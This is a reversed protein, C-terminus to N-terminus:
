INQSKMEFSFTTGENVESSVQIASQHLELIRHVIALGLGANSSKTRTSDQQYFRDFIRSVDEKPIGCGTDVIKVVVNSSDVDVSITITGGSPTHRLGNDILNELVRQMMALDGHILPAKPNLDTHIDIQKQEASLQYKQAVDMVLECMSFPEAYVVSECSDLKALEFLEEVLGTLHKSHSLATQIYELQSEKSIDGHQLVLTELYGQMATLPTRLDHSVNAVMERRVSDMKKLEDVQGNIKDAMQNFQTGLAEIEDTSHESVQYRTQTRQESNDDAYDSMASGLRRLRRTQFSFVLVGGVLATILALLLINMTSDFIYSEGLMAVADDYQEGGLVIYLYGQFQGNEKIEAASFVKYGDENRPDDGKLPFQVDTNLFQQIPQLDVSDRKIKGEPAYYDIVKGNENLFYLEITPNIVMLNHFLRDLVQGNIEGNEVISYEKVIHKAVGVNLKQAVEQQYSVNSQQIVNVLLVGVVILLVFLTFTIRSLLTKFIM